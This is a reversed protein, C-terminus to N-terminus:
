IAQGPLPASLNVYTVTLLATDLATTGPTFTGATGNNVKIAGFPVLTSEDYDPLVSVSAISAAAVSNSATVTVAGAANIFLFFVRANGAVITKAAVDTLAIDTNAALTYAKGAVAYVLAATNKAIASATIKIALAASSLARNQLYTLVKSLQESFPHMKNFETNYAM